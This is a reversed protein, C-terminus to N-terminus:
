AAQQHTRKTRGIAWAALGDPDYRYGSGRREATILRKRALKRLYQESVGYQESAQATSPWTPDSSERPFGGPARMTESVQTSRRAETEIRRRSQEAARCLEDVVVRFADPAAGDRREMAALGLWAVRALLLVDVPGLLLSGAEIPALAARPPTPM